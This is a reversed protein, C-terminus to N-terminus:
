KRKSALGKKTAKSKTARKKILGGRAFYTGYSTDGYTETAGTYTDTQSTTTDGSNGWNYDSSTYVPLNAQTPTYTRSAVKAAKEAAEKAAKDAAEKAAAAKAANRARSEGLVISGDLDEQRQALINKQKQNM